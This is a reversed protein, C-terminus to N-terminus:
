SIRRSSNAFIITYIALAQETDGEVNSTAEVRKSFSGASLSYIDNSVNGAGDGIRKVIEGSMTVFSAFDQKMTTLRSNLSKDDPSARLVRIVLEATDGTENLAIITNGNKGKKLETLSNPHTLSGVDGDGLNVLPTLSGDGALDLSITDNGTLSLTAM